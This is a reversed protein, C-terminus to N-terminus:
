PSLHLNAQCWKLNKVVRDVKRALEPEVARNITSEFRWIEGGTRDEKVFGLDKLMRTITRNDPEVLITVEPLWRDQLFVPDWFEALHRLIFCKSWNYQEHRKSRRVLGGQTNDKYLANGSQATIWTDLLLCSSPGFDLHSSTLRMADLRQEPSELLGMAFIEGRRTLPLIVSVGITEWIANDSRRELSLFSKVNNRPDDWPLRDDKTTWQCWAEYLKRRTEAIVELNASLITSEADSLGVFPELDERKRISRLRFQDKRSIDARSIMACSGFARMSPDGRHKWIPEQLIELEGKLRRSDLSCRYSQM